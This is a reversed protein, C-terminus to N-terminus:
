LFHPALTLLLISLTSLQLDIINNALDGLIVM